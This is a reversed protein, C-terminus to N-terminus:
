TPVRDPDYISMNMDCSIFHRMVCSIFINKLEPPFQYNAVTLSRSLATSTQTILLYFLRHTEYKM